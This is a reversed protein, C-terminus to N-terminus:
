LGEVATQSYRLVTFGQPNILRYGSFSREKIFVATISATWYKSTMMRDLTTNDQEKKAITYTRFDVKWIPSHQGGVRQTSVIEVEQVTGKKVVKEWVNERYESFVDFIAPASLLNVMGGPFWRIQMEKEDDIINNRLEVYQKIFMETLKDRSAMNTNISEARVINDSKDQSIILFPKVTVEPALKFLALSASTFLILSLIALFIFLRSLWMYYKLKLTAEQKEAEEIFSVYRETNGDTISLIKSGELINDSM